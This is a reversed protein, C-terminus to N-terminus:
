FFSSYIVRFEEKPKCELLKMMVRAVKWFICQGKNNERTKLKKVKRQETLSLFLGRVVSGESFCFHFGQCLLLIVLCFLVSYSMALSLVPGVTGALRVFQRAVAEIEEM